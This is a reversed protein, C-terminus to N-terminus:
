KKLKDVSLSNADKFKSVTSIVVEDGEDLGGKIEIYEDTILGLELEQQEASDGNVVYVHQVKKNSIIAGKKLRLVDYRARKVIQLDVRQNPILK